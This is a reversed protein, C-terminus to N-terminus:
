ARARPRPARAPKGAPPRGRRPKAEGSAGPSNETGEAAGAKAAQAREKAQGKEEKAKAKALRREEKAKLKAAKRLARRQRWGPLAGVPAGRPEKATRGERGKFLRFRGGPREVGPAPGSKPPKGGPEQPPGGKRAGGRRRAGFPNPVRLKFKIRRRGGGAKRIEEEARRRADEAERLALAAGRTNELEERRRRIEEEIEQRQRQANAGRSKELGALVEEKAVLDVQKRHLQWHPTLHRQVLLHFIPIWPVLAAWRLGAVHVPGASVDHRLVDPLLGALRWKAVFPGVVPLILLIRYVRLDLFLAEHGDLERLTKYVFVRGYVGLTLLSYLVVGAPRRKRGIFVLEAM